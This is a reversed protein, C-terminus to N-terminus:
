TLRVGRRLLKVEGSWAQDALYVVWQDGSELDIFKTNYWPSQADWNDIKEAKGEAVLRVSMSRMAEVKARDRTNEPKMAFVGCLASTVPAPACRLSGFATLKQRGTSRRTLPRDGGLGGRADM